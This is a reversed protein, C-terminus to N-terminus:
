RKGCGPGCRPKGGTRRRALRWAFCVVTAVVLGIAIWHQTEPTM